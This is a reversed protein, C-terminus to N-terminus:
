SCGVHCHRRGRPLQPLGHRHVRCCCPIAHHGKRRRCVLLFGQWIEVGEQCAQRPDLSDQLKELSHHVAISQLHLCPDGNQCACSPGSEREREKTIWCQHKSCLARFPATAMPWGSPTHPACLAHPTCHRESASLHPLCQRSADCALGGKAISCLHHLQARLDNRAHIVLPLSPKRHLELQHVFVAFIRHREASVVARAQLRGGLHSSRKNSATGRSAFDNNCVDCTGNAM